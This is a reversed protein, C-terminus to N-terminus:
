AGGFLKFFGRDGRCWHVWSGLWIPLLHRMTTEVLAQIV